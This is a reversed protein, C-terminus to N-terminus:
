LSTSPLLLLTQAQMLWTVELSFDTFIKSPAGRRYNVGGTGAIM